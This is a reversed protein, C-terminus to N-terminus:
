SSCRPALTSTDATLPNGVLNKSECFRVSQYYRTAARIANLVTNGVIRVNRLKAAEVFAICRRPGVPQVNDQVILGDIGWFRMADNPGPCAGSASYTDSHNGVIQYNHRRFTSPDYANISSMNPVVSDFALPTGRMTNYRFYVGDIVPNATGYFHNAFLNNGHPGFTNHEVYLGKFLWSGSVPEIDIASRSSYQIVNDHIHLNEAAGINIGQRGSGMFNKDLGFRSHEITVNEPYTTQKVGGVMVAHPM